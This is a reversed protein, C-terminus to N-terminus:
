EVVATIGDILIDFYPASRVSSEHFEGDSVMEIGELGYATTYSTLTEGNVTFTSTDFVKVTGAKFAEELEAVKEATGPAVISDNLETTYVAGEAYGKCWDRDIEEGDILCKVAYTVYAGWDGAASTLATNPAVPLMSINYGVCPVGAAVDHQGYEGRLLTSCPWVLKQDHFIASILMKAVNAIGFETCGKGDIEIDGAKKVQTQLDELSIEALVPRERRLQLFPKGGIFIRSWVIFSSNGHEGMCFGYISRRSYGTAKSLVRLLRYTELSTGTCFCRSPQWDMQRRIYECIIDAPNSISIMIGRFDVQKLHSVVENAMKISDDFMDLRTEGPRRSRGFAMVMIDADHLEEYSGARISVDKGCLSGSVCDDLDLAQGIAKEKLIDILVIDDAEGSQILALAVHSGVHGAGVIVVKRTKFM